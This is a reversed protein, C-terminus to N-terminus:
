VINKMQPLHSEIENLSGNLSYPYLMDSNNTEQIEQEDREPNSM